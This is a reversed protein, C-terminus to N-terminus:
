ENHWVTASIAVATATPTQFGVGSNQTAPTVIESGPQAVWRFTARQNLPLRLMVAGSTYTPEITLNQLVSINAAVTDGPDIASPTVASGAASGVVCRQLLYLFPNDAATAESGIIIEQIKARRPSAGGLLTGLSATTSATRALAESYVAM